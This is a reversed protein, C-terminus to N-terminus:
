CCRCVRPRRTLTWCMCARVCCAGRRLGCPPACSAWSCARPAWPASGTNLPVASGLRRSQWFNRAVILARVALLLALALLLAVAPPAVGWAQMALYALGLVALVQLLMLWKLIRAIM